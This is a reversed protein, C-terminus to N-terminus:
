KNLKSYESLLLNLIKLLKEEKNSVEPNTYFKSDSARLSKNYIQFKSLPKDGRLGFVTTIQNVLMSKSIDGEPPISKLLENIENIILPDEIKSVRISNSNNNLDVQHVVLADVKDLNLSYTTKSEILKQATIELDMSNENSSRETKNVPTISKSHIQSRFM